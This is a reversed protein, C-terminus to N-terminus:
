NSEVLRKRFIKNFLEEPSGAVETWKDNLRQIESSRFGLESLKSLLEKRADHDHVIENVIYSYYSLATLLLFLKKDGNIEFIDSAEKLAAQRLESPVQNKILAEVKRELDILKTGYLVYPKQERLFWEITLFLKEIPRLNSKLIVRIMDITENSLSMEMKENKM